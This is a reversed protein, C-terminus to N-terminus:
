ASVKQLWVEMGIPRDVIECTRFPTEAVMRVFDERSYARRRLGYKFIGRTLLADIRSLRMQRVHSDIETDSADNRMDVILAQGGSRLVRHM